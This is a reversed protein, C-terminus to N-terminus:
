ATESAPADEEDPTEFDQLAAALEDSGGENEEELLKALETGMAVLDTAEADEDIRVAEEPAEHGFGEEDPM